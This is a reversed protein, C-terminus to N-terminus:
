PLCCNSSIARSNSGYLLCTAEHSQSQYFADPIGNVVTEIAYVVHLPSQLKIAKM